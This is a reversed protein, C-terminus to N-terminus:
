QTISMLAGLATTVVHFYISNGPKAKNPLKVNNTTSTKFPPGYM